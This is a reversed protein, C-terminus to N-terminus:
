SEGASPKDPDPRDTGYWARLRPHRFHWAAYATFGAVGGMILAMRLWDEGNQIRSFAIGFATLVWVIIGLALITQIVYAVWPRRMWLLGICMLLLLVVVFNGIRAFHAGLVVLSLIAPLFRVIM